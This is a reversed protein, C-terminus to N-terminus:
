FIAVKRSNEQKTACNSTAINKERPGIPSEKERISHTKEQDTRWKLKSAKWDPPIKKSSERQAQPRDEKDKDPTVEHFININLISASKISIM